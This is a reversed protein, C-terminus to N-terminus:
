RNLNKIKYKNSSIERLSQEVESRKYLVRGGIRYGKLIGAKTYKNLTPLSIKLKEAVQKRTLYEDSFTEQSQQIGEGRNEQLVELVINKIEERPILTFFNSM